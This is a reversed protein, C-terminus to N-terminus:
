GGSERGMFAARLADRQEDVSQPPDFNPMFSKLTAKKDGAIRAAVLCAMATRDWSSKEPPELELYAIWAALERRSGLSHNLEAVTKGM